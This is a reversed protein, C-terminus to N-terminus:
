FAPASQALSDPLHGLNFAKLDLYPDAYLSVTAQYPHGTVRRETLCARKLRGSSVMKLFIKLLHFSALTKLQFCKTELHVCGLITQLSDSLHSM